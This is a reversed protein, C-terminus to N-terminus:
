SVYRPRNRRDAKSRMRTLALITLTPVFGDFQDTPDILEWLAILGVPGFLWYAVITQLIDAILGLGFVRGLTFDLVDVAICIALVVPMSFASAGGSRNSKRTM